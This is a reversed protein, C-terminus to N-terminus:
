QHDADNGALAFERAHRVILPINLVVFSSRGEITEPMQEPKFLEIFLSDPAEGESRAPVSVAWCQRPERFDTLTEIQQNKNPEAAFRTRIVTRALDSTFGFAGLEVVILAELLHAFSYAYARGHKPAPLATLWQGRAQWNQLVRKTVLGGTAATIAAGPFSMSWCDKQWKTM